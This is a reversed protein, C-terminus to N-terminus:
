PRLFLNSFASTCKTSAPGVQQGIILSPQAPRHNPLLAPHNTADRQLGMSRATHQNTTNRAKACKVCSIRVMPVPAHQQHTRKQEGSHGTTLWIGVRVRDLHDLLLPVSFRCLRGGVPKGIGIAMRKRPSLPKHFRFHWSTQAGLRAIWFRGNRPSVSKSLVEM